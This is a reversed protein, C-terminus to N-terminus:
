EDGTESEPKAVGKNETERWKHNCVACYHYVKGRLARTFTTKAGCNPCIKDSPEDWSAFKCDPYRSCGYFKKGKKSYKEVLIGGCDKVPCAYPTPYPESYSCKPYASCAIFRRGKRDYKVVMASGCKPCLKDIKEEESKLPRTNKCKPFASCALYKGHRGWRVVMPSGCKECTEDSKPQTKAVIESKESEIRKLKESFVTYFDTLVRITKDDGNEIRDLSEEMRSTFHVEFIDPFLRVLLKAVEKGLETPRLSGKQREVYKRAILTQIIPAYTSPRGIGKAELEKVLSGETFRAPPKTQEKKSEFSSARVEEDGKLNPIGEGEEVDKRPMVKLWGDFSVRKEVAEFLAKDGKLTLKKVRLVAPSMQSAVFRRWILNYLKYEDDRLYPRVKEPTYDIFTPRIAEHAEQATKNKSKFNRPSSYDPGFERVIFNKASAIAEPAIRPSDTRMYTILGTPGESGLEVGEYLRQAIQMTKASGFRLQQNAELQLSSTIFPPQPSLREEKENLEDITFVTEKLRELLEKVEDENEFRAKKGDLKVLKARIIKGGILFEGFINWYFSPVFSEIEAEREVILRLAVTQVRGASLGKYYAKWLIPSVLYGVLRDLIRRAKQAEVKNMDLQGPNKLGEEIGRRTIENFLVRYIEKGEGNVLNYIHWAIAEGERDPDSALYIKTFKRAVEKLKKIIERKEPIQVFKPEFGNEIDIGLRGEPLDVIHGGSAIVEFDRGLYRKITRSKTPSEVIILSKKNM